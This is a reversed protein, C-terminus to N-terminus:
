EPDPTVESCLTFVVDGAIRPQNATSAFESGEDTLDLSVWGVALDEVTATGTYRAAGGDGIGNSLDADEGNCYTRRGIASGDDPMALVLVDESESAVPELATTTPDTECADSAHRM